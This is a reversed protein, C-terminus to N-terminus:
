QTTVPCSQCAGSRPAPQTARWVPPPIGPLSNSLSISKKINSAHRSAGLIQQKLKVSARTHCWGQCYM